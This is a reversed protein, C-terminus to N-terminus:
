KMSITVTESTVSHGYRDTIVCFVRRGNRAANMTVAYSKGRFTNTLAFTDSGENAYYWQYTLGDGQAQITLKATAGYAVSVDTPQMTIKLPTRMTLTVVNSTVSNGFKDTIVCYVRRGDRAGNMSVSYTNGSFSHTRTFGTAGKNAYYWRYTLGEGAAKVTISATADRAVCATSNQWLITVPMSLTVTNTTVSAGYADTIVCYVRRGARAGNMTMTYSNGSFTKTYTFSDSGLDAYYWRFRLGDGQVGVSVEATTGYAAMVSKPQRTIKLPTKLGITVTDSTISEGFKDTIVCYIRRGARSNNMSVAYTGSRFSSTYTFTDVGKNAFYWKYTLGDGTATVTARATAGYGVNVSVPQKTIRLATKRILTVTNTQVSFGYKDTIVCYVRSGGLADTMTVSYTNGSDSSCEVFHNSNADARYWSYRLGDGSATVQVSALDGSAAASDSPQTTIAVKKFPALTVTGYSFEQQAIDAWTSNWGPYRLTTTTRYFNTEVFTPIDGKFIVESLNTGAAFNFAGVSQVAELTVATLNSCGSISGEELTKVSAPLVLETLNDNYYIAYYGITHVTDPVTIQACAPAAILTTMAKDYLVGDKITYAPNDESCTFDKLNTCATFAFDGIQTLSAPLHIRELNACSNFASDGIRTLTEPLIVVRMEGWVFVDDGIAVVTKGDITKPIELIDIGTLDGDYQYIKIGGSTSSYCYLSNRRSVSYYRPASGSYGADLEYYEGESITILANRHGSGAGPDKNGNRAKAEIGIRDCVELILGTSAWCDGGGTVIMGTASSYSASYNFSAPFRCVADLLQETTMDDTINEAIYNDIIQDAYTTAYDHVEITVDYTVDDAMVRVVSIGFDYETTIEVVELDPNLWTSGYGSSYWYWTTVSPTVLGTNSVTVSDGSLLYFYVRSAEPAKLQISGAYSDPISIYEAAWEDMAYISGDTDTTPDIIITQQAANASVSSITVATLVVALVFLHRLISRLKM